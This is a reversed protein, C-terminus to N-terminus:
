LRKFKKKILKFRSYVRQQEVPLRDQIIANFENFTKDIERRLKKVSQLYEKIFPELEKQSLPKGAEFRKDLILFMERIRTDVEQKLPAKETIKDRLDIGTEFRIAEMLEQLRNLPIIVRKQYDREVNDKFANNIQKQENKQSIKVRSYGFLIREKPRQVERKEINRLTKELETKRNQLKNIQQVRRSVQSEFKGYQDFRTDLSQIKLFKTTQSNQFKLIKIAESTEILDNEM